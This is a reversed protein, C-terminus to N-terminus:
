DGGGGTKPRPKPKPKPKSPVPKPKVAPRPSAPQRRVAPRSAAEPRAPSAGPRPAVPRPREVTPAAPAADPGAPRPRKAPAASPTSDEAGTTPTAGRWDTPRPRNPLADTIPPAEPTRPRAPRSDPRDPAPCRWAGSRLVETPVSIVAGGPCRVTTYPIRGDYRRLRDQPWVVHYAATWEASGRGAVIERALHETAVFPNWTVSAHDLWPTRGSALLHSLELPRDSAILLIYTEGTSRYDRGHRSRSGTLHYLRSETRVTHRGTSFARGGAGSWGWGPYIMEIGGLPQMAFVAVHAPRNLDFSAHGTFEDLWVTAQLPEGAWGSGYGYGADHGRQDPVPAGGAGPLYCGTTALLLFPLLHRM